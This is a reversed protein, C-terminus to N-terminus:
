PIYPAPPSTELTGFIDFARQTSLIVQTFGKKDFNYAFDVRLLGNGLAARLNSIRLGFGASNHFRTEGVKEGQDWVAAVDHFAAAGFKFFFLKIDPLFTYETNMVIRNDGILGYIDYARLGNLNDIRQLIYRPWNWVTSGEFRATLAGPGLRVAGSGIVRLLTFKAEKGAVGTGGEVSAYGYLNDKAVAQRAEAGIYFVNDLGGGHPSIKGLVVEGLGGVPLLSEGHFEIDRMRVFKRRLSSLGVFAGVSREFASRAYPLSDRVTRNYSLSFSTRFLDGTGGKSTAFWGGANTASVPTREVTVPEGHSFVFQTGNLHSGSAGFAHKVLDSYFPRTISLEGSKDLRSIGFGAGIRLHTGLVNPDVLTASYRWGRDNIDTYEAGVSAQYAYGFLNVEQLTGGYSASNGGTNVSAALQTSWSDRTEIFLNGRPYRGYELSDIPRMTVSIESFIGLSRLNRELEDLAKQDVTDGPHVFVEHRIVSEKTVIHLSNLLGGVWPIDKGTTDFVDHRRIRVESLIFPDVTDRVSEEGNQASVASPTLVSLILLLGFATFSM